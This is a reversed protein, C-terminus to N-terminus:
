FLKHIFKGVRVATKCIASGVKGAGGTSAVAAGTGAGILVGRANVNGSNVYQNLASSAAGIIAGGVDAAVVPPVYDEHGTFPENDDDAWFIMSSFAIDVVADIIIIPHQNTSAEPHDLEYRLNLLKDYFEDESLSLNILDNVADSLTQLKSYEYDGIIGLTHVQYLLAPISGTGDFLSDYFDPISMFYRYENFCSAATNKDDYSLDTQYLMMLNILYLKDGIVSVSDFTISTDLQYIANALFTNHFEGCDFTLDNDKQIFSLHNNENTESCIEDTKRCSLIIFSSIACLFAIRIFRIKKM